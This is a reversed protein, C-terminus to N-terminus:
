LSSPDLRALAAERDLGRGEDYAADFDPGLDRRLDELLQSIVPDTADEAGRLRAAAGLMQAAATVQGRAHALSATAAGQMAVIPMDQTGVAVPYGDAVCRETAALDGDVLYLRALTALTMARVHGFARHGGSLQDLHGVLEDRLRRMTEFDGETVAIQALISRSVLMQMDSGSRTAPQMLVDVDRRAGSVDGLRLRLGAVRAGLMVQDSDAGLDAMYAASRRYAEIAEELNGDLMQLNAYATLTSALGWRDGLEEFEALAIGVDARIQAVDGENEAANARFMRTAARTWADDSELGRTLVQSMREPEGAFMALAVRLLGFWPRADIVSTGYTAETEDLAISLDRMRTRPDDEEASGKSGMSNVEHTAEALVRLVPQVEGEVALAFGLWYAADAHDSRLTWYWALSLALHVTAQADGSEGLFRLAALINDHETQIVEIASVQQPGRLEATREYALTAFYDAHSTRAATVEGREALREVGYERITELMRYRLEPGDSVQLLSKDVLWGMLEPVQEVSLDEDACIATAAEPTAGAPFVALREALLREAPSLLDWSWEVVARLTRHRPMATRSGGTLLRFRDSLRSAIEHVPLVRLRAAALEIALPLGDLRRVIEIVDPTTGETLVFDARVATARDCFLQVSAYSPLAEAATGVPPLDLSSLTCLAEGDIGLPERSTALIQLHPCQALLRDVLEAVSEILHECNDVVLLCQASRLADLLRTEPDRTVVGERPKDLVHTERLDLAGLIAQIINAPETVPALEVLWVGDKTQQLRNRGVEAALRTKGAGGPGVITTLRSEDMLGHLRKAEDERGIFKTLASRLNTPPASSPATSTGRLLAVHLDQLEQSPDTGLQDALRSRLDEYATLAEAGRGAAALATMLQGTFRERLPFSVALDQLEGVLDSGSGSGLDADIRDGLVELRQEQWRVVLGRAYDADDADALPEGRWLALAQRLLTGAEPAASRLAQRGETALRTFEAVDTDTSPIALRYGGPAQQVLDPSGLARRVRSVLSQLANLVNSPPTEDQWVADVLEGPSITRSADVALRTLLRRVRAGTIPVLAEGDHVELPGLLM